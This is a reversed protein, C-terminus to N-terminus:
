FTSLNAAGQVWIGGQDYTLAQNGIYVWEEGEGAGGRVGSAGGLWGLCPGLGFSLALGRFLLVTKLLPKYSHLLMHIIHSQNLYQMEM